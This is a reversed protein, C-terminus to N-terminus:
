QGVLVPDIPGGYQGLPQAPATCAQHQAVACDGLGALGFVYPEPGPALENGAEQAERIQHEVFSEFAVGPPKRQTM